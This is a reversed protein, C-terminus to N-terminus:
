CLMLVILVPGRNKEVDQPLIIPPPDLPAWKRPSDDSISEEFVKKNKRKKPAEQPLSRPPPNKAKKQINNPEFISSSSVFEENTPKKLEDNLVNLYYVQQSIDVDVFEKL